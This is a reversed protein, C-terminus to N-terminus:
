LSSRRWIRRAEVTHLGEPIEQGDRRMIGLVILKEYLFLKFVSLLDFAYKSITKNPRLFTTGTKLEGTSTKINVQICLTSANDQVPCLHHGPVLAHPEGGPLDSGAGELVVSMVWAM